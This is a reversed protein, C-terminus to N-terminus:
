MQLRGLGSLERFAGGRLERWGGGGGGGGGVVSRLTNQCGEAVSNLIKKFKSFFKPKRFTEPFIM